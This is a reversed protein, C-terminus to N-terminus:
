KYKNIFKIVEEFSIPGEMPGFRTVKIAGAANAFRLIEEIDWNKLYTVIFAADYIDGAGTPDVEEVSYAPIHIIRDDLFGISGNSGLKIVVIEAGIELLKKGAKRPDSIGTLVEAEGKSPLIFSSKELVPKCIERIKEVSLLEPRLNPDFSIKINNEYAIRVAKYIANMSSKSVAIASGMVHLIKANAIYEEDIDRESLQGAASHRLHFIFRREGSSYYMVFATGTTYEDMIRLYKIDVGDKKLREILMKGFDDNGVVGIFGISEGLRAVADAFIAPAGSPYPGLYEGVVNHPVDRKKRMIEVLIEGLAVINPCM